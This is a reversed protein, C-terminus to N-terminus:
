ARLAITDLPQHHSFLGPKNSITWILQFKKREISVMFIKVRSFVQFARDEFMSSQVTALNLM